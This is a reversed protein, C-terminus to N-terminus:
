LAPFPTPATPAPLSSSITRGRPMWLSSRRARRAMGSGFAPSASGSVGALADRLAAGAADTGVAGVITAEAGMRGAAVAQNLGKGGAGTKSGNAHITEGPEPFHEVSLTIDANASGFIVVRGM